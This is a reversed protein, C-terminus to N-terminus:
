LNSENSYNPGLPRHVLNSVIEPSSALPKRASMLELLPGLISPNSSVFCSGISKGKATSGKTVRSLDNKNMFVILSYHVPGSSGPGVYLALVM